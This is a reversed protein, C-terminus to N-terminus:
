NECYEEESKDIIEIIKDSALLVENFDGCLLHTTVSSLLEKIAPQWTIQRLENMADKAEKKNYRGCAMKVVLIKEKLYSYDGEMTKSEEDSEKQPTFKTIIGRLKGLFAPASASLIAVEKKWGAANKIKELVRLRGNDAACRCEDPKESLNALNNALFFASLSIVLINKSSVTLIKFESEAEGTVRTLLCSFGYYWHIWDDDEIYNKFFVAAERYNGSLIRAAGFVLANKRVSVPKSLLVKSELKLISPYDSIVMYSSALIRVNRISCRGKTFIIQELYYALAPWDERELLSFLRYNYLLIVGTGILIISMIVLFFLTVYWFKGLYELPSKSQPNAGTGSATIFLPFLAAILLIFVISISFAIILYKFKM